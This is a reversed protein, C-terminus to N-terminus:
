IQYEQIGREITKVSEGTEEAIKFKLTKRRVTKGQEQARNLADVYMQALQRRRARREEKWPDM